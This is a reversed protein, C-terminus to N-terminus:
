LRGAAPVSAEVSYSLTPLLGGCAGLASQYINCINSNRTMKECYKGEGHLSSSILPLFRRDPIEFGDSVVPTRDISTMAMARLFCFVFLAIVMKSVGRIRSQIIFYVCVLSIWRLCIIIIFFPFQHILYPAFISWWISLLEKINVAWFPDQPVLLSVRIAM